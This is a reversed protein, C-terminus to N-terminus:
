RSRRVGAPRCLDCRGCPKMPKGLYDSIWKARCTAENQLYAALDALRQEKFTRRKAMQSEIIDLDDDTIDPKLSRYRVIRDARSGLNVVGDVAAQYLMALAESDAVGLISAIASLRKQGDVSTPVKNLADVIGRCTDRMYGSDTLEASLTTMVEGIRAILGAEEFRHLLIASDDAYFLQMPIDRFDTGHWPRAKLALTDEYARKVAPPKPYSQSIFRKQIGIDHPDYLQICECDQGDRGGRGAEQWYQDISETVQYHIVFRVNPKDIGMGFAKTACLVDMDDSMFASSAKMKDASSMEGHYHLARVGANRLLRALREATERGATYVIGPKRASGVFSLLEKQKAEAGDVHRVSLVLNPRYIDFDDHIVKIDLLKCIEDRVQGNATATLALVTPSRYERLFDPIYLYDARFDHGWESICHAEDVVVLDPRMGKAYLAARFLGDSLREPAVLLIMPENPNLERLLSLQQRSDMLSNLAATKFPLDELSRVQDEMLAILPSVVLTFGRLAAAAVQYCLSKGAGTPMIALTNQRNLVSQICERQGPRFRSHQPFFRRLCEDVDRAVDM